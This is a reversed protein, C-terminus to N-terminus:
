LLEPQYEFLEGLPEGLTEFRRVAYECVGDEIKEPALQQQLYAAAAEAPDGALKRIREYDGPRSGFAARNLVHTIPDIAEADPPQFSGIAKGQPAFLVRLERPVQDCGTAALLAVSSATTKLFKRRGVKM